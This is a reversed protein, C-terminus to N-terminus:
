NKCRKNEKYEEILELAYVELIPTVYELEDSTLERFSGNTYETKVNYIEHQEPEDPYFAYSTGSNPAIWAPTYDLDFWIVREIVAGYISIEVSLTMTVEKFEM